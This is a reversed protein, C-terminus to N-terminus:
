KGLLGFWATIVGVVGAPLVQENSLFDGVRGIFDISKLYQILLDSVKTFCFSGCMLLLINSINITLIYPTYLLENDSIVSLLNILIIGVYMFSGWRLWVTISKNNPIPKAFALLILLYCLVLYIMIPTLTGNTSSIINQQIFYIYKNAYYSIFCIIAFVPIYFYYLKRNTVKQIM